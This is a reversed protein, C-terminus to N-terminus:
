CVPRAGHSNSSVKGPLRMDVKRSCTNMNANSAGRSISTSAMFEVAGKYIHAYTYM